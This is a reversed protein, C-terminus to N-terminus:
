YGRMKIEAIERAEKKANREEYLKRQAKIRDLIDSTTLTRPSELHHFIGLQKAVLFRDEPIEPATSRDQVTGTVVINIQNSRILEDSLIYPAGIVVEDVFRCSLVSLVREQLNMVPGGTRAKVTNDDWVGVILYSGLEKAKKLIDSHGVHFLDFGGDIYVIKDSSKPLGRGDLFQVIKRTTPLFGSIGTYPSVKKDQSVSSSSEQAAQADKTASLALMRNVLQTTSVGQTRAITKFRGAAKVKGYTDQGDANMVIDDGHVCFDCDYKDMVELSTTYPADEVVEDAWQCARVAAYREEENM